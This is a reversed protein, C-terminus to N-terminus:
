LTLNTGNYIELNYFINLVNRTTGRYIGIGIYIYMYTKLLRVSKVEEAHSLIIVM